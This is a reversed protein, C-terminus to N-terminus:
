SLQQLTKVVEEKGEFDEGNEIAKRFSERAEEEDGLRYLVMGLHYQFLPSRPVKDVAEELFPLARHPDEMKYYIRGLTALLNPEGPKQGYAKRALELAEKLEHPSQPYEAKLCALNNAAPWNDPFQTLTRTYVQKAEEIQNAEMHLRALTLYAAVEEPNNKIATQFRKVAEEFKGQALYIGALNNQPEPRFPDLRIAEEFSKLAQPFKKQVALVKGLLNHPLPAKPDEKIRNQCLAGAEELKGQELFLNVLSELVPESDPRVREAEELEKLAKATKEGRDYLRALKLRATANKPERKKLELYVSEARPLDGRQRYFDGLAVYSAPDPYTELVKKLQDEAAAYDKKRLFLGALGNRLERSKPNANVAKWLTDIAMHLEDNGAHAKALHLHGPVFEPRDNAVAQFETVARSADGGMLFVRGLTFRAEVSRPDKELVERAFQDAEEADRMQIHAEALATKAQLVKVNSPDREIELCEMLIPVAEHPRGMDILLESLAFRLDFSGPFRLRGEELEQKAEEWQRAQILFRALRLRIEENEPEAAVPGRLVELAREKHGTRWHLGALAEKHAFERPELAIVEEMLTFAQTDKGSGAYLRTLGLRLPVSDPNKAIGQLFIEEAEQRKGGRAYASALLRYTEPRTSGKVILGELLAASPGPENKALLVTAKFLLAEEHDPAEKLIMDAIELAPDAKNAGLLIRGLQLQADL